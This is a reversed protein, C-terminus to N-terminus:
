IKRVTLLDLPFVFGVIILDKLITHTNLAQYIKNRQAM